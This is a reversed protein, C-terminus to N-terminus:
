MAARERSGSAERLAFRRDMDHALSGDVWDLRHSHNAPVVSVVPQRRVLRAVNQRKRQPKVPQSVRSQPAAQQATSRSVLVRKKSSPKSSSKSSSKHALPQTSPRKRQRRKRERSINAASKSKSELTKSGAKEARAASKFAAITAKKDSLASKRNAKREIAKLRVPPKKAKAPSLKRGRYRGTRLAAARLVARRRSLVVCGAACSGVLTILPWVPLGAGSSSVDEANPEINAEEGESTIGEAGQEVDIFSNSKAVPAVEVTPEPFDETLKRPSILGELAVVACLASVLWLAVVLVWPKVLLLHFAVRASKSNQVLKSNRIFGPVSQKNSTAIAASKESAGKEEVTAKDASVASATSMSWSASRKQAGDKKAARKLKSSLRKIPKVTQLKQSLNATSLKM